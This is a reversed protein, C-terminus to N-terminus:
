KSIMGTLKDVKKIQASFQEISMDDQLFQDFITM